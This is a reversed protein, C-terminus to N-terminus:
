PAVPWSVRLLSKQTQTGLKVQLNQNLWRTLMQQEGKSIEADRFKFDFQSLPLSLNFEQKQDKDNRAKIELTVFNKSKAPWSIQFEFQVPSAFFETPWEEQLDIELKEEKLQFSPSHSLVYGQLLGALAQWDYVVPLTCHYGEPLDVVKINKSDYKTKKNVLTQSNKEFPVLSDKQTAVILVPEQVDQYFKWFDNMEWFDPSDKMGPPLKITSVYSLGGKYTKALKEVVADMFHFAPFDKLDEFYDKLNAMRREAWIDFVRSSFGKQTLNELSSKLDVVPCFAFFSQILPGRPNPNYKNLLSAFLVGNGGLSVGFLHVNEIIQSLPELPDQLLKALLINQLGEDYGGFSIKKNNKIFDSGSMNEVILINFPSQEFLMMYWPREAVMEDANSFIGLRLIVLPRKKMDGKLGLMGKVRVNGPLSIVVPRLFSNSKVEQKVSLMKFANMGEGTSGVVLEKECQQFYKQIIAGQLHVSTKVRPDQLRAQWVHPNCDESFIKPIGTPVWGTLGLMFSLAIPYRGPNDELYPSDEGPFSVRSSQFREMFQSQSTQAQSILGFFIVGLTLLKNPLMPTMTALFGWHTM